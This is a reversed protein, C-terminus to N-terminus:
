RKELPALGEVKKGITEIKTTVDHDAITKVTESDLEKFVDESRQRVKDIRSVQFDMAEEAIADIENLREDYEKKTIMGTNFRACLEEYRAIIGQVAKDWAVKAEGGLTVEPGVGFLLSGAKFGIAMGKKTKHVRCDMKNAMVYDTRTDDLNLKVKEAHVTSPILIMLLLINFVFVIKM